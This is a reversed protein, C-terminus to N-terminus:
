RIFIGSVVEHGVAANLQRRLQERRMFLENRVVSSTVNVYLTGGRMECSNTCRAAYEGVVSPWHDAVKAEAIKRAITPASLLFDDWLDGIRVTRTRRM